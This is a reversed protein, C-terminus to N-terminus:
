RDKRRLSRDVHSTSFARAYAKLAGSITSRGATQETDVWYADGNADLFKARGALFANYEALPNEGSLRRFKEGSAQMREEHRRVLQDFDADLFVLEDEFGPTRVGIPRDSTVLYGGDDPASYLM